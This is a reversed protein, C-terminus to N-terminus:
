LELQKRRGPPTCGHIVASLLGFVAARMHCLRRELIITLSSHKIFSGPVALNSNETVEKRSERAATKRKRREADRKAFDVRRAEQKLMEM